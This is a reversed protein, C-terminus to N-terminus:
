CPARLRPRVPIGPEQVARPHPTPGEKWGRMYTQIAEKLEEELGQSAAEAKLWSQRQGRMPASVRVLFGVDM